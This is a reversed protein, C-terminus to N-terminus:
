DIWCEDVHVQTYRMGGIYAGDFGSEHESELVLMDGLIQVVKGYQEFDSKFSIHDGISVRVGDVIAM